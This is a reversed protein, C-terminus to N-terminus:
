VGFSWIVQMGLGWGERQRRAGEFCYYIVVPHFMKLSFRMINIQGPCNCGGGGPSNRSTM